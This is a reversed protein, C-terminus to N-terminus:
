AHPGPDNVSLRDLVAEELPQRFALFKPRYAEGLDMDGKGKKQDPLPNGWGHRIRGQSSTLGAAPADPKPVFPFHLYSSLTRKSGEQGLGAAVAPFTGSNFLSVAM